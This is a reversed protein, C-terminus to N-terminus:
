SLRMRRWPRWLAAIAAPPAGEDRADRHTFLHAALRVVGQAIPEPLGSWGGALGATYTVRARRAGGADPIRVWGHGGADIDVAFGGPALAVPDVAPALAEVGAIAAVPARRLRRWDSGVTLIDRMTRAILAQGTFGEGHGIATAILRAILAEEGAGDIRLYAQAAAIAEAPPAIPDALAMGGGADAPPCPNWLTM